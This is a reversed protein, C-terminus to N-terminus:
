DIKKMNFHREYIHLNRAFHHYTGVQLNLESAVIEQLKTWCYQDNCFGFVLDNSRMLVSMDLLNSNPKIDFGVSLTCPADYQYEDKEKGDFITFWAQRTDRDQRLQEICKELQNNRSWQWGYNSNVIDDGNHMKDWIPAYKKIESVSRNKSLYWEFEREAYKKSFKRWPTTIIRDKPNIIIFNANYIAKTGTNTYLGEKIIKDYLNEFAETANYYINNLM